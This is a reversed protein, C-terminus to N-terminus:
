SYIVFLIASVAVDMKSSGMFDAVFILSLHKPLILVIIILLEIISDSKVGQPQNKKLVEDFPM